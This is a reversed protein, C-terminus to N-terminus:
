RPPDLAGTILMGDQDHRMAVFLAAAEAEGFRASHVFLRLAGPAAARSVSVAVDAPGAAAVIQVTRVPGASVCGTGSGGDDVLAFDANEVGDVLEIHLDPHAADIRVRYDPAAATPSLRYTVAGASLCLDPSVGATAAVPDAPEDNLHAIMSSGSAAAAIGAALLLMLIRARDM